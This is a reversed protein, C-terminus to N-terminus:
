PCRASAQANGTSGDAYTFEAAFPFGGVPCSRPVVITNATLPHRPKSTGITLQMSVISANSELPLTPIAPVSLVLDEGYPARDTIVTGTLVVREDFPTYGQALIEFTPELNHFPGLFLSLEINESIVQSGVEAEALAHGYGLQSQSSCAKPGIARLRAIPCSRLHPIEVGLGTPFRLVSRRVPSPVRSEGGTYSINLQLAGQAGLRNPLLSPTITAVTSSQAAAMTALYTALAAFTLLAITLLAVAVPFGRFPAQRRAGSDRARPNGEVHSMDVLTPPM